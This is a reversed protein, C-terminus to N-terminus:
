SRNGGVAVDVQNPNEEQDDSSVVEVVVKNPLCIISQGNKSIKGMNVCLGDPCSAEKVYASGQEIVLLNTGSDVGQITETRDEALDYSAVLKGDVRVQVSAGTSGTLYVVLAIVLGVALLGAVLLLEAKRNKVNM